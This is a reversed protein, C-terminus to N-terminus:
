VKILELAGQKDPYSKEIAKMDFQIRNNARNLKMTQENAEKVVRDYESDKIDRINILTNLEESSTKCQDELNQLMKKIKIKIYELKFYYQLLIELFENCM